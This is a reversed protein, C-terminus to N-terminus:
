TNSTSSWGALLALLRPRWSLTFAIGTASVALLMVWVLSAMTAHDVSLCLVLSIFLASGGLSRLVRVTAASPLGQRVQRWHANMALALWGMGTFAAVFAGLLLFGDLM